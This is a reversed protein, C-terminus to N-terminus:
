LRLFLMKLLLLIRNHKLREEIIELYKKSDSAVIIEKFIKSEICANLSYIVLPINQIKKINKNVIGKSKSRIPIICIKDKTM